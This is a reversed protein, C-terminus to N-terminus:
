EEDPTMAINGAKLEKVYQDYNTRRLERAQAMSMKSSKPTGKDSPGGTGPDFQQGKSPPKANKTADYLFAATLDEMDMGRRSPRTAFKKFADEKGELEPHHNLTVPNEAYEEVSNNWDEINKGAERAKIIEQQFREQVFVKKALRKETDTMLDWDANEAILEEETPEPLNKAKDIAENIQKNKLALVEAEQASSRFKEKYDPSEKDPEEDKKEEKPAEEEKKDEEVKKEEKPKEEIKPEEDKKEEEDEEKEPPLNELDTLSKDVGQQLEEKTPPKDTKIAKEEEEM